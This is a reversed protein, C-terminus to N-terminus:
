IDDEDDRDARVSYEPTRYFVAEYPIIEGDATTAWPVDKHSYESIQRASMDALRRLTDNILSLERASLKSLDPHRLPLYKKQEFDFYPRHVRVLEGNEEMSEVLAQFEVPTPGYHNRRYTAGILQEEYKEYYDFDIFYLLKYLVTEGINPKAGVRALVYLLVERFKAVNKQPVSIRLDPKSERITSEGGRAELVVDPAASLGVIQDSSVGLARALRVLEDTSVRRRGAEITAVATRSVGLIRALDAQTLGVKERLVKINKGIGAM